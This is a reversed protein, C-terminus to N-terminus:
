KKLNKEKKRIDCFGDLCVCRKARSGLKFDAYRILSRLDYMRKLQYFIESYIM